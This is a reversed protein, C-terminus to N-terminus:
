YFNTTKKFSFNITPRDSFCDFDLGYIPFKYRYYNNKKMLNRKHIFSIEVVDFFYDNTKSQIYNNPHLHVIKFKSTLKKISDKFSNKNKNIWHFEIILMEINKEFKLIQDIIEYENGEIDIKLLNNKKQDLRSFIKYFNVDNKNDIKSVVKEKFLNVNEKSIFRLFKAFNKISYILNSFNSRFLLSRRLYKLIIKIFLYNSVTYDYLFIYKTHKIKDFDREFSTDDGVGLSILNKCKKLTDACVLYGGDFNRGLRILKKVKIPILFNLESKLFKM